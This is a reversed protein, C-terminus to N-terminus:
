PRIASFLVPEIPTAWSPVKFGYQLVYKGKPINEKKVQAFGAKEIMELLFDASYQITAPHKITKEIVMTAPKFLIKELVFFWSPVCSEM